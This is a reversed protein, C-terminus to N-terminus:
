ARLEQLDWCVLPELQEWQDQNDVKDVLDLLDLHDRNALSGLQVPLVWLVRHDALVQEELLVKRVLQAQLGLHELSDQIELQEQEEM